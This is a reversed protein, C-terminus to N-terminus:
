AIKQLKNKLSSDFQLVDDIVIKIGAILEPNIKEFIIDKKNIIGGFLKRHKDNIPRASELVIIKRGQKAMVIKNVLGLIKDSQNELGESILIKVFNTTIKKEDFDGRLIIESLAKSYIKIKDQKKM